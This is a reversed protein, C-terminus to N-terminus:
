GSGWPQCSEGYRGSPGGFQGRAVKEVFMKAAVEPYGNDIVIAMGGVRDIHDADAVVNVQREGRDVGVDGFPGLTRPTHQNRAVPPRHDGLQGCTESRTAARGSEENDPTAGSKRIDRCPAM